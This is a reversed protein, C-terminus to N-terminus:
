LASCRQYGDAFVLTFSRPLANDPTVDRFTFGHELRPYIVTWVTDNLTPALRSTAVEYSGNAGNVAIAIRELGANFVNYEYVVRGNSPADTAVGQWWHAGLPVISLYSDVPATQRLADGTTWTQCALTPAPPAPAPVDSRTCVQTLNAFTITLQTPTERFSYSGGASPFVVNWHSGDLGHPGANSTGVFYSGHSPFVQIYVWQGGVYGLYYDYFPERAGPDAPRETGHLWHGMQEITDVAHEQVGNAQTTECSWTSILSRLAPAAHPAAGAPAALTCLMAAALAASSVPTRM